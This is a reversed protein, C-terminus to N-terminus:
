AGARRSNKGVYKKRRKHKIGKILKDMVYVDPMEDAKCEGREVLIDMATKTSIGYFDKVYMVRDILKMSIIRM